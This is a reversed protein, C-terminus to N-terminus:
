IQIWTDRYLVYVCLTVCVSSTARKQYGSILTISHEEAQCTNKHRVDTM